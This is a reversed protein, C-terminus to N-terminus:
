MRINTCSCVLKTATMEPENKTGSNKL